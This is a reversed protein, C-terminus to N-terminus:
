RSLDIHLFPGVGYSIARVRSRYLIHIYITCHQEKM